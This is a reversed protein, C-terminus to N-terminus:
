CHAPTHGKNNFRTRQWRYLGGRRLLKRPKTAAPVQVSTTKDRKVWIKDKLIITTLYITRKM